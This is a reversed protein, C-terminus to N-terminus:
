IQNKFKELIRLYKAKLGVYALNSTLYGLLIQICIAIGHSILILFWKITSYVVDKNLPSICIHLPLAGVILIIGLFLLLLLNHTKMNSTNFKIVM